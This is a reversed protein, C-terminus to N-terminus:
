APEAAALAARGKDTVTWGTGEASILWRALLAVLVRERAAFALRGAMAYEHLDSVDGTAAVTRLEALMRPSLPRAKM